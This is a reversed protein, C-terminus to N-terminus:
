QRTKPVDPNSAAKFLTACDIQDFQYSKGCYDCNITLTGQAQLADSVEAEGLMKLMNGVKEQSCGCSFAPQLPDFVLIDEEWFLRHRLTDIDTSLMEDRKLTSTLAVINHWADEAGEKIIDVGREDRQAPMRQLLVGCVHNTDAALWVHTDLQESHRMYNEIIESISDGQLSVIGQYPRQGPVKKHPDLTIIFRGKGHANVLDALSASENIEIEDNLKATARIQMNNDCEVVLLRIPGDGHIQMVTAGEFKISGSLLIAAAAMEGLLRVVPAPYSRHALMAQWADDLEVFEGRADAQEFLIKQLKDSM